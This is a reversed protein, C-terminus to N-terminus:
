TVLKMMNKRIYFKPVYYAIISDIGFTIVTAILLLASTAVSFDGFLEEGAHRAVIMNIIFLMLQDAVIIFLNLYFDM